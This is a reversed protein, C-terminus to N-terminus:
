SSGAFFLFRGLIDCVGKKCLVRGNFIFRTGTKKDRKIHINKSKKYLKKCKQM